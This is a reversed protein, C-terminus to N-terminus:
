SLLKEIVQFVGAEKNSPASFRAIEKLQPHANDM